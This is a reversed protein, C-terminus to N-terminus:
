LGIPDPTVSVELARRQLRGLTYSVEYQVSLPLM